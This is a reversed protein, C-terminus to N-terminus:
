ARRKKWARAAGVLGTGLLLLSTPEPVPNYNYAEINDIALQNAHGTEGNLHFFFESTTPAVSSSGANWFKYGSLMLQDNVFADIMGTTYDAAMLVHYTQGEVYNFFSMLRTNDPSRFAFVGQNDGTPAVAFRFAWGDTLAYTNMGFLIGVQQSTDNLFKPQSTAATPADLVNIDFALTVLSSQMLFGTDLFLAGLEGNAANTTLIAAKNMGGVNGVVITGNAATPPAYYGTATYGGIGQLTTIPNAATLPNPAASTAPVAGLADGQFTIQMFKFSEASATGACAMLVIAAAVCPLLRAKTRM